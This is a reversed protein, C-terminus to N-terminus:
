ELTKEVAIRIKHLQHPQLYESLLVSAAISWSNLFNAIRPLTTSRAMPTMMPTAKPLITSESTLSMMEIEGVVENPERGRGALGRGVVSGLLGAGGHAVTGEDSDGDVEDDDSEHQKENDAADVTHHPFLLVRRWRGRRWGLILHEECLDSIQQSPPHLDSQGDSGGPLALASDKSFVGDASAHAALPALSTRIISNKLRTARDKGLVEDPSTHAALDALSIRL